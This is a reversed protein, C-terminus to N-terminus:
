VMFTRKEKEKSKRIREMKGQYFEIVKHARQKEKIKERM